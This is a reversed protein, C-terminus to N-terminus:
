EPKILKRLFEEGLPSLTYGPDHSITLGINKLKRVNLKLGEKEKGTKAALDAARLKPNDRILELLQQTWAGQKSYRDLRQLRERLVAFADDTLAVQERLAIRPDEGHYRVKIKFIKGETVANLQALLKERNAFGAQKANATTIEDATVQVIDVIQILGVGTKVLSGSKVAAVKWKRFALKIKGSRIGELHVTKFLM